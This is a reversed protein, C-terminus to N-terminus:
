FIFLAYQDRISLIKKQRSVARAPSGVQGAAPRFVEVVADVVWFCFIASFDGKKVL